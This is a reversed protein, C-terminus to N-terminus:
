NIKEEKEIECRLVKEEEGERKKDDRRRKEEKRTSHFAFLLL